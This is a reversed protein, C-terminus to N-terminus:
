SYVLPWLSLNPTTYRFATLHCYIHSRVYATRCVEPHWTRTPDAVSHHETWRYRYALDGDSRSLTPDFMLGTISVVFVRM